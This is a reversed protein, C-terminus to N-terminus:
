RARLAAQAAHFGCMGHVGGGPPTSSSCLFVGPLPTAYPRLLSPRALLQGLDQVGGNIDGGVYNANEAELAAPGAQHRALVLSRFGPAFREVQAEIAEVMSRTSGSPVHCYAWAVHRGAPARSPDFLTPQALLVFPRAPHEGRWVAAESAAIEEFAGGLHVTGALACDPDRWPIPGALAWDLKFVGPGYRYGALRRRYGPPLREGALALLQRPTVDLLTLRAAPLRREAHAADGRGFEGKMASGGCSALLAFQPDERGGAAGPHSRRLEREAHAADGRRFEGKMASGGCSALSSVRRGCSVEGGLERLHAVLADTIRGAGGRPLPWGVAHAAGALILAFAASPPRELPLMSHAALGAVLARARPTHLSRALASASRLGRWGLTALALPHRLASRSALPGLLAPALEDWRRALGGVLSRYRPGDAGLGAATAELDRWVLVPPADELPHALALPPEIWELGHRALPLTRLFPSGVALPHIASCRDHLFGPLTLAASRAGGGPDAAAELVLVRQGASALVIAAALGNPGSGVVVADQQAAAV